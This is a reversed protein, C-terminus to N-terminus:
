KENTMDSTKDTAVLLISDTTSRVAVRPAETADVGGYILLEFRSTVTHFHM